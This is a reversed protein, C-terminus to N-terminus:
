SAKRAQNIASQVDLPLENWPTNDLDINFKNLIESRVTCTDEDMPSSAAASGYFVCSERLADISIALDRRQASPLTHYLTAIDEPTARVFVAETDATVSPKATITLQPSFCAYRKMWNESPVPQLLPTADRHIWWIRHQWHMLYQQACWKSVRSIEVLSQLQLGGKSAWTPTHQTNCHKLSVAWAPHQWDKWGQFFASTNRTNKQRLLEVAHVIDQTTKCDPSCNWGASLYRLIVNCCDMSTGTKKSVAEILPYQAPLPTLVPHLLKCARGIVGLRPLVMYRWILEPNTETLDWM